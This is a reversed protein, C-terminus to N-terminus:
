LKDMYGQIKYNSLCIKQINFSEAALLPSEEIRSFDYREIM